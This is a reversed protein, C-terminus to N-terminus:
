GSITRIIRPSVLIGQVHSYSQSSVERRYHGCRVAQGLGDDNVLARLEGAPGEQPPGLLSADVQSEDVRSLRVLVGVDLAEVPLEAVFAEVDVPEFREVIRAPDDLLPPDVVVLDPRM